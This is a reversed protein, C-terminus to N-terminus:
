GAPTAVLVDAGRRLRQMQPNIKVGGFVVDSRLDLYQGYERVSEAV